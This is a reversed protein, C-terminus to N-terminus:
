LRRHCNMRMAFFMIAVLTDVEVAEAIWKWACGLDSVKVSVQSFFPGQEIKM